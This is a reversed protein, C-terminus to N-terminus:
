PGAPPDMAIGMAGSLAESQFRSTLAGDPAVEYVSDDSTVFYRGLRPEYQLAKVPGGGLTHVDILTRVFGGTKINFEQILGNRLNSVYLNGNHGITMGHAHDLHDSKNVFLEGAPPDAMLNFKVISKQFNEAAFVSDGVVTLGMLNASRLRLSEVLRGSSADYRHVSRQTDAAVNLLGRRDFAMLGPGFRGIRETLDSAVLPGTTDGTSGAVLRVINKNGGRLGVFIEGQRNVALGWPQSGTALKALVTSRGDALEFQIVNDSKNGVVLLHIPEPLVLSGWAGNVGDTPVIKLRVVDAQQYAVVLAKHHGFAPDKV